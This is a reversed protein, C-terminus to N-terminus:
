LIKERRKENGDEKQGAYSATSAIAFWQRNEVPLLVIGLAVARLSNKQRIKIFAEHKEKAQIRSGTM